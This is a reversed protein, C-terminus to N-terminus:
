LWYKKATHRHVAHCKTRSRKRLELAANQRLPLKNAWLVDERTVGMDDLIRDDLYLVHQFALRDIRLAKRLIRYKRLAEIRRRLFGMLPTLVNAFSTDHGSKQVLTGSFYQISM